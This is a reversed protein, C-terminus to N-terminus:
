NRRAFQSVTEDILRNRDEHTLGRGLVHETAMTVQTAMTSFLEDLAQDKARNIENIARQRATEAEANAAAMIDAKTREADRRAEAMIEKVEEGIAEMRGQHEKVLEEARRRAGEADEIAKRIGAERADLAATIKPWALKKLGFFLIVFVLLTFIALDSRFEEPQRNVGKEGIHEHGGHDAAEATSEGEAAADHTPEDAARVHRAGCVAAMLAAAGIVIVGMFSQRM